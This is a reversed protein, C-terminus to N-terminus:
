GGQKHRVVVAWEPESAVVGRKLIIQKRWMDGTLVAEQKLVVLDKKERNRQTIEITATIRFRHKGLHFGL